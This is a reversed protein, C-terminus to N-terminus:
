SASRRSPKKAAYFQGFWQLEVGAGKALPDQTHDVRLIQVGDLHGVCALIGVCALMQELHRSAGRHGAEEDLPRGEELGRVDLGPQLDVRREAEAAGGSGQPWMWQASNWLGRPHRM